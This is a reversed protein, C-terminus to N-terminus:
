ELLRCNALASRVRARLVRAKILSEEQPCAGSDAGSGAGADGGGGAAAAADTGVDAALDVVGGEVAEGGGCAGGSGEEGENGQSVFGHLARIARM